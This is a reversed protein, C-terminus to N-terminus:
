VTLVRAGVEAMVVTQRVDDMTVSTCTEEPPSTVKGRLAALPSGAEPNKVGSVTCSAKAPLEKRRM